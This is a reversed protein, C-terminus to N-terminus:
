RPDEELGVLAANGRADVRVVATLGGAGLERELRAAEDQPVFWSEIGCRLQWTRRCTLYTGDAPRTTRAEDGVWLEGDRRLPVYVTGPPQQVQEELMPQARPLGPYDLAVYAGRFPDVPDLPAVALRVETGTLRASLPAWCGVVVLVAQVVLLAILQVVRTTTM